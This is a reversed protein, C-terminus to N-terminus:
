TIKLEFHRLVELFIRITTEAIWLQTTHSHTLGDKLVNLNIAVLGLPM